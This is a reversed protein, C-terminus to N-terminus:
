SVDKISPDFMMLASICLSSVFEVIFVNPQLFTMFKVNMQKDQMHGQHLM